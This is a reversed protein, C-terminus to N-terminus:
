VEGKYECEREEEFVDILRAVSIVKEKLRNIDYDKIYSLFTEKKLGKVRRSKGNNISTEKFDNKLLMFKNSKIMVLNKVYGSIPSYIENIGDKYILDNKLVTQNKNVKLGKVDKIPIYLYEPNLYEKYNNVIKNNLEKSINITKM